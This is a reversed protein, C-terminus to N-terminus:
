LLSRNTNSMVTLISGQVGGMRLHAPPFLCSIPVMSWSIGSPTFSPVIVLNTSGNM